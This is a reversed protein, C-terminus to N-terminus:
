DRAHRDPASILNNRVAFATVEAVNHLNLKAMLNERHKRVTHASIGLLKAIATNSNGTAVQQLIQAERPSLALAKGGDAGRMEGRVPDLEWVQGDIIHLAAAIGNAFAAAVESGYAQRGAALTRVANALEEWGALRVLFGEAGAHLASEVLERDAFSSLVLVRAGGSRQERVIAALNRGATNGDVVAVDGRSPVLRFHKAVFRSIAATAILPSEVVTVRIGSRRDPRVRATGAAAKFRAPANRTRSGRKDEQLAKARQGTM